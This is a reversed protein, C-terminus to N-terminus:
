TCSANHFTLQCQNKSFITLFAICSAYFLHKTYVVRNPYAPPGGALAIVKSLRQVETHVAKRSLACYRRRITSKTIILSIQYHSPPTQATWADESSKLSSGTMCHALSQMCPKTSTLARLLAHHFRSSVLKEASSKRIYFYQPGHDVEARPYVPHKALLSLSFLLLM